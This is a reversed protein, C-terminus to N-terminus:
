RDSCLVILTAKVYERRLAIVAASPPCVIITGSEFSVHNAAFMDSRVTGSVPSSSLGLSQGAPHIQVFDSM